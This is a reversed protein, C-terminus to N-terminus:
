KSLVLLMCNIETVPVFLLMETTNRYPPVLTGASLGNPQGPSWLNDCTGNDPLLGLCCQHSVLTNVVSDTNLLKM